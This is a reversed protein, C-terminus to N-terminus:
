FFLDIPSIICSSTIDSDISPIVSDSSSIALNNYSRWFTERVKRAPHFLGQVLFNFVAGPGINVRISEVAEITNLIVHPSSELINPWILNMLHMFVDPLSRGFNCLSLHKAVNCALQRHVIERECLADELLGIISLSYTRGDFSNYEFLFSLSKLVGNQVNLEPIRYENMISPLVAFPGCSEAVIAIAITTCLRNQREQVKLNNLLAIILDSPGIAKSIFGFAKFAEKRTPKHSTGLLDILEFCVRMWERISVTEYLNKAINGIFRSSAEQIKENKTRLTSAVKLVIDKISPMQISYNLDLLLADLSSINYSVVLPDNDDLNEYVLTVFRKLIDNSHTSKCILPLLSLVKASSLRIAPNQSSFKRILLDSLREISNVDRIQLNALIQFINYYIEYSEYKSMLDLLTDIFNSKPEPISASIAPNSLLKTILLAGSSTSNSILRVLSSVFEPQMKCFLFLIHILKESFSKDIDKVTSSFNSFFSLFLAATDKSVLHSHFIENGLCKSLSIIVIRQLNLDGQGLWKLFYTIINLSESYTLSSGKLSFISGIAKICSSVTKGRSTILIQVLIPVSSAFYSFGNPRLSEALSSLSLLAAVQVKINEHYICKTTIKILLDIIPYIQSSGTLAIYQISKLGSHCLEWKSETTCIVNFFKIFKEMGFTLVIVSFARCSANRVTEEPHEMDEKMISLLSTINFSKAIAVIIDKGEERIFYDNDILLPEVIILIQSAFSSLTDGYKLILKELIKLFIHREQEKLSSIMLLSILSKVLVQLNLDTAKDVLAKSAIRRAPISGFKIQLFLRLIKLENIASKQPDSTQNFLPKFFGREENSLLGFYMNDEKNIFSDITGKELVTGKGMNIISFGETPLVFDFFEDPYIYNEEKSIGSINSPFFSGPTMFEPVDKNVKSDVTPTEDWKSHSSFRTSSRPTSVQSDWRSM